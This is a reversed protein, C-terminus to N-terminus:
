SSRSSTARRSVRNIIPGCVEGSAGHTPDFYELVHVRGRDLRAPLAGDVNAYREPLQNLSAVMSRDLPGPQTGKYPGTVGAPVTAGSCALHVFTVSSKPDASEALAAARAVGAFSSRHCRKNEWAPDTFSRNAPNGEGSAVSDGIAVILFDQVVVRRHSTANHKNGEIHLTVDYTGEREFVIRFACDGSARKARARKGEVTWQRRMGPECAARRLAFDVEFPGRTVEAASQPYDLLGDVHHGLRSPMKWTFSASEDGARADARDLGGAVVAAVTLAVVLAGFTRAVLRV